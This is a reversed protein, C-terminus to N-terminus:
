PLPLAKGLDPEPVEEEPTVAAQSKEGVSILSGVEESRQTKLSSAPADGDSHM